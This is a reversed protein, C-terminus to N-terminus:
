RSIFKSNWYIVLEFKRTNRYPHDPNYSRRPTVILKFDFHEPLAERIRSYKVAKLYMEHKLRGKVVFSYSRFLSSKDGSRRHFRFNREHEYHERLKMADKLPLIIQKRM